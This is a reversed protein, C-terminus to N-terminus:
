GYTFAVFLLLSTWNIRVIPVVKHKLYLLLAAKQQLINEIIKLARWKRIKNIIVLVIEDSWNMWYSTLILHCVFLWNKQTLACLRFCFVPFLLTGFQYSHKYCDSYKFLVWPNKLCGEFFIFDPETSSAKSAQKIRWNGNTWNCPTVLCKMKDSKTDKIYVSLKYYQELDECWQFLFAVFYQLFYM